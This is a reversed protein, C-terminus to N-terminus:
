GSSFDNGNNIPDIPGMIDCGIHDMKNYSLKKQM